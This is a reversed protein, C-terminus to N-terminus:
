VQSPTHPGTTNVLRQITRPLEPKSLKPTVQQWEPPKSRSQLALLNLGKQPIYLGIMVSLKLEKTGPFEAVLADAIRLLRCGLNGFSVYMRNTYSELPGLM